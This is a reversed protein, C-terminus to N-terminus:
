GGRKMGLAGRRPKRSLLLKPQHTHVRVRLMVEALFYPPEGVLAADVIIRIFCSVDHLSKSACAAVMKHINVVSASGKGLSTRNRKPAGQLIHELDQFLSSARCRADAVWRTCRDLQTLIPPIHGLVQPLRGPVELLAGSPSSSAVICAGRHIQINSAHM